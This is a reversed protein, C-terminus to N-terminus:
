LQKLAKIRQEGPFILRMASRRMVLLCQLVTIVSVAVGGKVTVKRQVHLGDWFPFFFFLGYYSHAFNSCVVTACSVVGEGRESASM